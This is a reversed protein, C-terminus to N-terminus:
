LEAHRTTVNDERGDKHEEIWGSLFNKVSIFYSQLSTQDHDPHRAMYEKGEGTLRCLLVWLWTPYLIIAMKDAMCFASPNSGNRKALFRSHYLLFDYWCPLKFQKQLEPEYKDFLFGAINAGFQPHLEGEPGDMNPKSIYGLDHVFFALWLRPDFISTSVLTSKCIVKKTGYLKIWASAVFFPHLWFTHTGFLISKTGIKM